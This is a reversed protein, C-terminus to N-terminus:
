SVMPEMLSAYLGLWRDAVSELSFDALVIERAVQGWSTRTGQPMDLVEIVASALAVDDRSPVLRGSVGDRVVSAYGVVDTVVAPLGSAAAELLVIPGGEWLSSVLYCDSARMLDPIDNRIGLFRVSDGLHLTAALARTSDELPGQGALLLLANSHVQMVHAFARLMGAHNKAEHFRGVALLTPQSASIGLSARMASRRDGDPCFRSTDVGNPMYLIRGVPAAGVAVYKNVAAQSVNTTISAWRDTFRYALTRMRSGLNDTHATCVLPVQKWQCARSIRALLNAHILHSHVIDPKFEHVVHALRWVMRPDAMRRKMNLSWLHIGAQELDEQYSLPHLMSVVGISLGRRALTIALDRVQKEAGGYDLDTIVFLIRRVAPQAVTSTKTTHLGSSTITM